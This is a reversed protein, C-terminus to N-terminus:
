RVLEGKRSSIKEKHKISGWGGHGGCGHGVRRRALSGAAQADLRTWNKKIKTKPNAGNCAVVLMPLPMGKSRVHLERERKAFM